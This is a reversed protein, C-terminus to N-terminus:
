PDVVRDRWRPGSARLGDTVDPTGWDHQTVCVSDRHSSQLGSQWHDTPSDNLGPVILLRASAESHTSALRMPPM